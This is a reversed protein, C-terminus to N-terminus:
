IWQIPFILFDSLKLHHDCPPIPVRLGQLYTYIPALVKPVYYAIDFPLSAYMRQSLLIVWPYIGQIRSSVIAFINMAGNNTIIFFLSVVWIDVLLLIPWSHYIWIILYRVISSILSGCTYRDNHIIRLFM